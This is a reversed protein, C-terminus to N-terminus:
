NAKAYALCEEWDKTFYVKVAELDKPNLLPKSSYFSGPLLKSIYLTGYRVVSFGIRWLLHMFGNKFVRRKRLNIYKGMALVGKLQKETYSSHKKSFNINEFDVRANLANALNRVFAQADERMHEYILVLPKHEFTEELLKIQGTYTLHKKQFFGQDNELDFFSQFSGRYGNKIFRRYQSAIYSDHRRFVIIPRVNKVKKAFAKVEHEMQRDFERSVLFRDYNSKHMLEVASKYRATPIYHLGKLNPFVRHQLFTSGTKATGVHFYVAINTNSGKM